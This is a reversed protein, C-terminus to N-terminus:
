AVGDFAYSQGAFQGAAPRHPAGLRRAAADLLVAGACRRSEFTAPDIGTTRKSFYRCTGADPWLILRPLRALPHELAALSSVIAGCIAWLAAASPAKLAGFYAAIARCRDM